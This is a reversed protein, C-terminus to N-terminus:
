RVATTTRSQLRVCDDRLSSSGTIRHAIYESSQKKNRTGAMVGDLIDREGEPARAMKAFRDLDAFGGVLGVTTTTM